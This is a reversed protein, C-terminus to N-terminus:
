ALASEATRRQRSIRERVGLFNWISVLLITTGTIGILVKVLQAVQQRFAEPQRLAIAQRLAQEMDSQWQEALLDRNIAQYQADADTVTMVAVSETLSPEELFLVPYNNLTRVVITVQEPDISSPSFPSRPLLRQLNGEIKQARVEVPLQEGPDDRNLVVPAAIRFLEEGDLTVPTTELTGRRQVGTPSTNTEPVPVPAFQAVASLPQAAFDVILIFIILSFILYRRIKKLLYSNLLNAIASMM